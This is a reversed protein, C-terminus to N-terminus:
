NIETFNRGEEINHVYSTKYFSGMFSLTKSIGEQWINICTIGYKM